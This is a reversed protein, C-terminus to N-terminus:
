QGVGTPIVNSDHAGFPLSESYRYRHPRPRRAGPEAPPPAPEVAPSKALGEYDRPRAVLVPCPASRVLAEAVSPSLLKALRGRGHTGVVILDAEYDAAFQVLESEREGLGIHMTIRDAGPAPHSRWRKLVFARLAFMRDELLSAREGAAAESRLAEDVDTVVHVLHLSAHPERRALALAERLAADGTEDLEVGAVVVYPPRPSSNSQEEAAPPPDSPM